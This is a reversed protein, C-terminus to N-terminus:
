CRLRKGQACPSVATSPHSRSPDGGVTPPGTRPTLRGFHFKLDLNRSDPASEALFNVGAPTSFYLLTVYVQVNQLAGKFVVANELASLYPIAVCLKVQLCAKRAKIGLWLADGGKPQYENVTVCLTYFVSDVQIQEENESLHRV